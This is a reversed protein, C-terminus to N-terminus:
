GALEAMVLTINAAVGAVIQANDILTGAKNASNIIPIAPVGYRESARAFWDRTEMRETTMPGGVRLNGTDPGRVGISQGTVDSEYGLLAYDTNAKLLDFTANLAAAASRNGVAAGGGNAVEVNVVNVIRPALEAYTALRADVGPLDDYYVLLSLGDTEAAGVQLETILADQAYLFQRDRESFMDRAALGAAYRFRIGQVNDHLRPSRVRAIGATAGVAWMGCLYAKAPTDFNRVSLTDGSYATTATPTADAGGATRFTDIVELAKGM